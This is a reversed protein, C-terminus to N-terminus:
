HRTLAHGEGLRELDETRSSRVFQDIGEPRKQFRQPVLAPQARTGVRHHRLQGGGEGVLAPAALHEGRHQETQEGLGVVGVRRDAGLDAAGDVGGQRLQAPVDGIRCQAGAQQIQDAV